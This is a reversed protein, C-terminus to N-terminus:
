LPMEEQQPGLSDTLIQWFYSAAEAPKAMDVYSKISAGSGHEAELFATITQIADPKAIGLEVEVKEYFGNMNTPADSDIQEVDQPENVSVPEVEIIEEEDEGNSDPVGPPLALPELLRPRAEQELMLFQEEVWSPAPEIDLLWKKRRIRKGDRGSPTSIMKPRRKLIFPIGRLRGKNEWRYGDLEKSLNAIDWISTTLVTMYALRRLQPIIVKFRGHPKCYVPQQKGSENTWYAVPQGDCKVMEGTEISKGDKVIVEGSEYDIAYEIEERNCRHVLGGALYAENWAELNLEPEDFPLFIEIVRPEDNYAEFFMKTAEEEGENFTARFYTLDAGPKKSNKPKPAGKRLQGLEIFARPQDTLGKIPM